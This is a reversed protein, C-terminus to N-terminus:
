CAGTSFEEPSPSSQNLLLVSLFCVVLLRSLNRERKKKKSSEQIYRDSQGDRGREKKVANMMKRRERWRESGTIRRHYNILLYKGVTSFSPLFFFAFSPPKTSCQSLSYYGICLEQDLSAHRHQDEGRFLSLFLSLFVFSFCCDERRRRKKKREGRRFAPSARTCSRVPM